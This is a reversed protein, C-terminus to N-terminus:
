SECGRSPVEEEEERVEALPERSDQGAGAGGQPLLPRARDEGRGVAPGVAM